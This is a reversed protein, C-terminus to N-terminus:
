KIIFNYNFLQNICKKINIDPIGIRKLQMIYILRELLIIDLISDPDLDKDLNGHAFNNRQISVRKAIDTYNMEKNNLEYLYEAFEYIIDNLTNLAYEINSDLGSLDTFNLLSKFIKKMKGTSTDILGQINSNADEILKLREETKRTDEPFLQKFEWEFGATILVFSAENKSYNHHLPIHKIYLTNSSIEQLIKNEFNKIFDFPIYNTSIIKEDEDYLIEENIYVQGNEEYLNDENLIRTTIKDFQINKRYVLYQIFQKAIFYIKVIFMYDNTTDFEFNINTALLIPTEKVQSSLKRDVSFFCKVEKDDVIFINSESETSKLNVGANGADGISYSEISKQTNYIYNLEKAYFSIRSISDTRKTLVIHSVISIKLISNVYGVNKNSPIMIIKNQTESCIGILYDDDIYVDQPIYAGKEELPKWFLKWSEKEFDKKPILSLTKNDELVFNYELGKFALEGFIM